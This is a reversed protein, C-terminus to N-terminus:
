EVKFFTTKYVFGIYISAVFIGFLAASTISFLFSKDFYYLLIQAPVVVSAFGIINITFWNKLVWNNLEAKITTQCKPCSFTNDKLNKFLTNFPQKQSCQPCSFHKSM